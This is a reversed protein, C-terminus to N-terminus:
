SRPPSIRGRGMARPTYDLEAPEDPSLTYDAEGFRWLRNFLYISIRTPEQASIQWTGVGWQGPYGRGGIVVTPKLWGYVSLLPKKM